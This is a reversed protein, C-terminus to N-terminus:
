KKIVRAYIEYLGTLTLLSDYVNISKCLDRLILAFGGTAIVLPKTDYKRACEQAFSAIMGEVMSIHGLVIGSRMADITNTGIATQPPLLDIRPLKATHLALADASTRPGPAIAAGVFRNPKLLLNFTTATGFDIVILARATHKFAAVANVLMDTGVEQPRDTEITIIEQLLDSNVITSEIQWYAQLTNAIEQEVPPVVSSIIAQKPVDIGKLELLNKFLVIYEDSMRTKNTAIRWNAQLNGGQYLGLVTNTNGIDIALLM